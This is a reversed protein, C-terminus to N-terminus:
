NSIPMTIGCKIPWDIESGKDGTQGFRKTQEIGVLISADRMRSVNQPFLKENFYTNKLLTMITLKDDNVRAM